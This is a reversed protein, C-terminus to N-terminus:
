ASRLETPAAPPKPTNNVRAAMLRQTLTQNRLRCGSGGAVGILIARRLRTTRSKGFSGYPRTMRKITRICAQTCM